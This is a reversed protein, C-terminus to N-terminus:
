IGRIFEEFKGNQNASQKILLTIAEKDPDVQGIDMSKSSIFINDDDKIIEIFQKRNQKTVIVTKPLYAGSLSHSVVEIGNAFTTRNQFFNNDSKM